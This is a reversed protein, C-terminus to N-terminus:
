PIPETTVVPIPETTTVVPIPETTTVVPIPETTTVVPIPETTAMPVTTTVVPIPETTTEEAAPGSPCSCDEGSAWVDPNTEFLVHKFLGNGVKADNAYGTTGVMKPDKVYPNKESSTGHCLPLAGARYHGKPDVIFEYAPNSRFCKQVEETEFQTWLAGIGKAEATDGFDSSWNMLHPYLDVDATESTTPAPEEKKGQGNNVKDVPKGEVAVYTLAALILFKM